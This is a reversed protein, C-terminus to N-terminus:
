NKIIYAFILRSPPCHRRVIEIKVSIIKYYRKNTNNKCGHITSCPTKPLHQYHAPERPQQSRSGSIADAIVATTHNRTHNDM